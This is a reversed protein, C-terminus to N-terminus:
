EFEVFQFNYIEAITIPNDSFSGKLPNLHVNSYLKTYYLKFYWLVQAKFLTYSFLEPSCAYFERLGDVNKHDTDACWRKEWTQRPTPLLAIPTNKHVIIIHNFIPM